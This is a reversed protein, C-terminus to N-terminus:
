VLPKILETRYEEPSDGAGPGVLYCEYLDGTTKYGNAKIWTTFEQWADGLGEYPGQYITSLVKLAPRKWPQVRGVATLPASVPICIDFNFTEATIKHHHAFWPGIPGIAQETAATMAEGIGPAMVAHINARTTEIHIIAAQQEPLDTVKPTEIM